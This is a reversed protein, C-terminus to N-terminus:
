VRFSIVIMFPTINKQSYVSVFSMYPNIYNSPYPIYRGVCLNMYKLIALCVACIWRAGGHSDAQFALCTSRSSTNELPLHGNNILMTVHHHNWPKKWIDWVMKGWLRPLKMATWVFRITIWPSWLVPEGMQIAPLQELRGLTLCVLHHGGTILQNIFGM